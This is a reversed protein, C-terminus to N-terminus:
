LHSSRTTLGKSSVVLRDTKMGISVGKPSASVSGNRPKATDAGPKFIDLLGHGAEVHMSALIVAGIIGLGSVAVIVTSIFWKLQKVVRRPGLESLYIAPQKLSPGRGQKSVARTQQVRVLDTGRRRSGGRETRDLLGTEM